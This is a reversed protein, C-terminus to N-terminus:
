ESVPKVTGPWAGPTLSFAGLFRKGQYQTHQDRALWIGKQLWIEVRSTDSVRYGDATSYQCEIACLAFRAEQEAVTPRLVHKTRLEENPALAATMTGVSMAQGVCIIMVNVAVGLGVNRVRMDLAVSTPDSSEAIVSCERPILIAATGSEMMRRVMAEGSMAKLDKTITEKLDTSDRFVSVWNSGKSRASLQRHEHLLKLVGMNDRSVWTLAVDRFKNRKWISYDSELRDRVYMHIPKKLRKAEHYELHTASEDPFDCEGLRPGYRQSLVIVFADCRAVNALCTEISNADPSVEFESTARESLVPTLGLSRIHAELEARADILDYCTSAVFVTGAM